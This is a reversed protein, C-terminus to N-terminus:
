KLLIMKRRESFGPAELVYFYVGTGLETGNTGRGDWVETYRGPPIWSDVLTRVVRGAPDYVRLTISGGPEPVDFAIHTIPNFPNPFNHSSAYAKPIVDEIGTVIEPSGPDSENGAHDVASVKYHDWGTGDPDAWGCDVTMHILNEQAPEFEESDGRYVKFYEFDADACEDWSLENGGPSHYAVALGAPVGPALNDVSYGTDPESDFYVWPVATTARIFFTSPCYGYAETSDCLTPAICQYVSETHAPITALYDWGALRDREPLAIEIGVSATSAGGSLSRVDERRYIEYGDVGLSDGAADHRSRLWEIRVQRGQDNPVDAIRTIAPEPVPSTNLLVSVSPGGQNAVILDGDDDADLDGIAVHVPSAGVAYSVSPQFTGDGNGRLFSVDNSFMNATVLDPTGDGNLDSVGVSNTGSGAGYGVPPLFTGDGNGLFVLVQDTSRAAAALDLHGDDNLDSAAIGFTDTGSYYSLPASFTGDGNGLLVHIYVGNENAVALDLAGDENLDGTAVYRPKPGSAYNISVGFTGDGNGLLVSVNGGIINAVALDQDGDGDFDAAVMAVPGVGAGYEVYTQFTGDGNGLLVSVHGDYRAIAMDLQHDSNLRALVVGYPGVGTACSVGLPFTGDGNGLFVTTYDSGYCAVVADASGDGNLDGIASCTPQVGVGYEVSPLFLQAMADVPVLLVIVTCLLAAVSIWKM